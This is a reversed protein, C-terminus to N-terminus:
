ATSRLQNSTRVYQEVTTQTSGQARVRANLYIAEDCLGAIAQLNHSVFVIAVGRRKFEKMREVCKEQFAMDGVSLVEDILLVDPDLHAAVSFGLRAHMGSSYRKVPTDIFDALGAFEIIEDMKHAIEA